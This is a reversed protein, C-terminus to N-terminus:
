EVLAELGTRGTCPCLHRRGDAVADDRGASGLVLRDRGRRSVFVGERGLLARHEVGGLDWALPGLASDRDRLETIEIAWVTRRCGRKQLLEELGIVPDPETGERKRQRAM